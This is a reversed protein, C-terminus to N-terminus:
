LNKFNVDDAITNKLQYSRFQEINIKKNFLFVYKTNEVLLFSPTENDM